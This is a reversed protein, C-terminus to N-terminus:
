AAAPKSRAPTIEPLWRPEIRLALSRAEADLSDEGAALLEVQDDERFAPQLGQDLGALHHGARAHVQRAGLDARPGQLLQHLPAAHRHSVLVEM